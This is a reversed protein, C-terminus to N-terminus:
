LRAGTGAVQRATEEAGLEPATPAARRDGRGTGPHNGLAGTATGAAAGAIRPPGEAAYRALWKYGIRRSVGYKECLATLVDEGARVAAVFRMRADMPCVEPCPM